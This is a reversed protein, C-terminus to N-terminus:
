PQTSACRWASAQWDAGAMKAREALMGGVVLVRGRGALREVLYTGVMQAIHHFGLPSAFLPHRVDSETLQIIPLGFDLLRYALGDPLFTCILADLDQALLEDVLALEEKSGLTSSHGIDVPVLTIALQQAHREVAERVQVWFADASGIRSGIRLIHSM